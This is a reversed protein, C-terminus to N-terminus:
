RHGELLVFGATFGPGLASLLARRFPGRDLRRRLVFLVTVSSMNGHDRLVARADDLASADLALAEELASLVKAGGPHCVFADIDSRARGQRELFVDAVRGLQTRVLTPIALAFVVGLGDDEVDWGMIRLSDPWRHEGSAVVAVGGPGTALVAAAAGDGFLACAVLNAKSRDGPRLTLSCLEVALLLVVAGPRARAIQAARALGQVGGACGLGFVPTRECDARLGLRDAIRADLSPTAIGTSSVTVVADVAEAALGAEALARKAAELTLAEAHDLYLRNREAPGHGGLYWALPMCMHRTAIGAHDFLATREALDAFAGTFLQASAKKAAGQPLRHAPLATGLGLLRVADANLDM